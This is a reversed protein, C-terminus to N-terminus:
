PLFVNAGHRRKPGSVRERKPGRNDAKHNEEGHDFVCSYRSATRRAPPPNTFWSRKQFTSEGHPPCGGPGSDSVIWALSSVRDKRAKGTQDNATLGWPRRLTSPPVEDLGPTTSTINTASNPIEDGVPHWWYPIHPGLKNKKYRKFVVSDTRDPYQGTKTEPSAKLCRTDVM